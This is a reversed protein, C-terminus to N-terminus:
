AAGLQNSRVTLTARLAPTLEGSENAANWVTRLQEVTQASRALSEWTPPPGPRSPDDVGVDWTLGKVARQDWVTKAIQCGRWGKEIDVWVLRCEATGAPLHIILARGLNLNPTQTERQDTEINYPVSRAYMALQMAIKNAAYEISGTKLDAIYTNGHYTIIRDATGAIRWDDFVRFQEIAHITTGTMAKQYAAIDAAAEAPVAGLPEGRDIRETLSHLATGTTAATSGGAHETAKDAIEGLRKKDDPRCAAAALVLDPRMGMGLATQRQKWLMLNYTNELVGVFTTCRQYPLRKDVGEVKILPRGYRDRPIDVNTYSPTM